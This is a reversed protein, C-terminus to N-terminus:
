NFSYFMNKIVNTLSTMNEPRPTILHRLGAKGSCYAKEYNDDDGEDDDDDNNDGDDIVKGVLFGLNQARAIYQFPM